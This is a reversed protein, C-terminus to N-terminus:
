GACVISGYCISSKQRLKHFISSCHGSVRAAQAGRVLVGRRDAEQRRGAVREPRAEGRVSTSSPERGALLPVLCLDLNSLHDRM